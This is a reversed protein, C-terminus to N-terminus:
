QLISKSINKQIRRFKKYIKINLIMLILAIKMKSNINNAFLMLSFHKKIQKQFFSIYKINYDNSFIIIDLWKFYCLLKEQEALKIFEPYNKKIVKINHKIAKMDDIYKKPSFSKTTSNDHQRYHYFVKNTLIIKKAANLLDFVIFNDEYYQNIPFIINNFLKRKYLKNWVAGDYIKHLLFNRVLNNKNNKDFIIINDNEKRPVITKSQYEFFLSCSIIDAKHKEINEFLFSYMDEEIWDDSDLFGIYEGKALKIGLNRAISQGENEKHIVYIRNDIKSYYDCINGSNDTSGDDILIIELNNYTQNIISNLCQKLYKEVNYVPIIISILGHM